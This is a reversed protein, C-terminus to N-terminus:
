LTQPAMPGPVEYAEPDPAGGPLGAFSCRCKCIFMKMQVGQSMLAGSPRVHFCIAKM